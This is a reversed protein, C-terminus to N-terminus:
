GIGDRIRGLLADAGRALIATDTGVAVFVYGEKLWHISDAEAGTLIGAPKGAKRCAAVEHFTKQLIHRDMGGSNTYVQGDDMTIASPKGDTIMIIQKMDKKQARLLNRALLLGEATNTHFPGM